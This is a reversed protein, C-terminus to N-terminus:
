RDLAFFDGTECVPGVLDATEGPPAELVPMVAHYADYLAPRILETMAADVVVFRKGHQEKVFVVRTLLGGADGVLARGPEVILELGLQDAGSARLGQRIAAGFADWPAYDLDEDGYRIPWGGGADISRLRAGAKVCEVAFAGLIETADAMPEASSLQSGVHCAVGELALHESTVLRPLLERAVDLELGFKTDHLGTAIYPHTGADVNPNVRLAVPAKVGLKAAEEAVVHLEAESEVHIARIGERLAYAIEDRRKGVGSFVIREAPIGAHLARALEGGSVIDAGCGLAALRRLIALNGNAKIAYAVLVPRDTAGRMADAIAGYAADIRSASYVWTPSGVEDALTELSVGECAIAGDREVFVESPPVAGQSTVVREGSM